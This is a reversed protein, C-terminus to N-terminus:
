QLGNVTIIVHGWGIAFPVPLHLEGSAWFLPSGVICSCQPDKDCYGSHVMSQTSSRYSAVHLTEVVAHSKPRVCCAWTNAKMTRKEWYHLSPILFALYRAWLNHILYYLWYIFRHTLVARKWTSRWGWSFPWARQARLAPPVRQRALGCLVYHPLSAHESWSSCAM